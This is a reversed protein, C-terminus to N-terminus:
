LLEEKTDFRPKSRRWGARDQLEVIHEPGKGPIVVRARGHVLHRGDPHDSARALTEM